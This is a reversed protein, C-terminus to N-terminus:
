RGVGAWCSESEGERAEAGGWMRQRFYGKACDEGSWLELGTTVIGPLMVVPHKARVGDQRSTLSLLRSINWMRVAWLNVGPRECSANKSPAKPTFDM